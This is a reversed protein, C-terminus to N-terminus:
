ATTVKMQMSEWIPLVCFFGFKRYRELLVSLGLPSFGRDSHGSRRNISSLLILGARQRTSRDDHNKIIQELTTIEEEPLRYTINM